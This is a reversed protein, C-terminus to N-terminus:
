QAQINLEDILKGMVEYERANTEGLVEPKGGVPLAGYTALRGAVDPEKLIENLHRNLLEVIAAPTGKPAFFGNWAGVVVDPYGAEGLTTLDPALPSRRADAVALLKLKGTDVYQAVTGLTTWVAQVHGAAADTVAPATGRYAVHELKIGASRNLWEGVIHMPSGAGPTGYSIPKGAKAGAVIEQLSAYGSTPSTVLVLPQVATQIIPAFGNLVDYSASGQLKLVKPATTFPNPTFLLTYGDPAARSVHANGVTGGAGARNEVIVPQGLRTALRESFLRAMSDTDGGPPYSVVVVVPKTPYTQATAPTAALGLAATVMALCLFRRKMSM